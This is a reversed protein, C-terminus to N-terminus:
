GIFYEESKPFGLFQMYSSASYSGANGIVLIDGVQLVPLDSDQSFIDRSYTSCGYVTTPFCEAPRLQEGNRVVAIPHKATDPYMLPRPFQVTSANVGVLKRDSRSKVDSVCCVFYGADGGIIRGPELVMRIDKGTQDSFDRM